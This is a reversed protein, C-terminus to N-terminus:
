AQCQRRKLASYLNQSKTNNISKVQWWVRHMGAKEDGKPWYDNRRVSGLLSPGALQGRHNTEFNYFHLLIMM